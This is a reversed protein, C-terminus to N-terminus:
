NEVWCNWSHHDPNDMEGTIDPWCPCKRWLVHGEMQSSKCKWNLWTLWPQPPWFKLDKIPQEVHGFLVLRSCLFTNLIYCLITFFIEAWGLFFWGDQCQSHYQYQIQGRKTWSTSELILIPGFNSWLKSGFNTQNM